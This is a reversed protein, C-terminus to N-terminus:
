ALVVQNRGANKAAYLAHDAAAIMSEATDDTGTSVAVGFSATISRKHAGLTFPSGAVIQRLREAVKRAEDRTAGPATVVFEEGGYRGIQDGKRLSGAIRHTLEVLVADGAPHGLTDNVKKFLDIDAMIVAIPAGTQRRETLALDLAAVIAGRNLIGTLSDHTAAREFAHSETTLQRNHEIIKQYIRSRDVVLSVQNAIQRFITEHTDTYANLTKSTFFLFGIPRDGITLPCILNSRGGESVIRKTADSEPNLKLFEELDNITRPRNTRLIQELYSGAMPQSYTTLIQTPNDSRVWYTTLRKGDDSLLACDIRDYPILESFGDFIRNLVDQVTLGKELNEVLDFLQKFREERLRLTEELLELQWGLRALPNEHDLPPEPTAKGARLQEIWKAYADIWAKLDQRRPIKAQM